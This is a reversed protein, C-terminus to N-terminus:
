KTRMQALMADRLSLAPLRKLQEDGGGRNVWIGGQPDVPTAYQSEDSFTPHGHQKFTDPFHVQAGPVHAAGQSQKWFGRYDYHSDPRDVDRIGNAQAWAQFAVEEAMGLPTVEGPM